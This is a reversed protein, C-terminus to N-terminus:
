SGSQGWHDLVIDLDGQGIFGSDDLDAGQQAPPVSQGWNDLVIDLDSQGVFGDGDVDGPLAAASAVNLTLTQGTTAISGLGSDFTDPVVSVLVQGDPYDPPVTVDFSLMVGEGFSTDEGTVFNEFYVDDAGPDDMPDIWTTAVIVEPLGAIAPTTWDDQGATTFPAAWAYSDCQLGPQTFSVTFIASTCADAPNADSSVWLSVTVSEGPEVDASSMGDVMPTITYDATTSATVALLGVLLVLIKREM